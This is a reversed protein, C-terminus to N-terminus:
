VLCGTEDSVAIRKLNRYYSKLIHRTVKRSNVLLVCSYDAVTCFEETLAPEFPQLFARNKTYFASAAKALRPHAPYLVLRKTELAPPKM